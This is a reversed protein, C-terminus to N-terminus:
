AAGEGEPQDTTLRHMMVREHGHHSTQLARSSEWGEAILRLVEEETHAYCTEMVQGPPIVLTM